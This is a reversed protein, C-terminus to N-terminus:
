RIVLLHNCSKKIIDLVQTSADYIFFHNGPFIQYSFDVTTYQNWNEIHDVLEEEDGMLAIIHTHVTLGKELFDDEELVRFDARMIPGFFSYLEDNELVEDPIGGLKRLEEKFMADEMLYRKKEEREIGPGPNGSVILAEPADGYGEMKKTVSLGLTAGMSHGYIIYPKNNRLSKIQGVYDYITDEKQYLLKEDNRKGRGPLELPYFEFEMKLDNKLFEYSYSSGGAFHLLFIQIKGQSFM